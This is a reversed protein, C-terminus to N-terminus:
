VPKTRSRTSGRSAPEQVALVAVARALADASSPAAAARAAAFRRSLAVADFQVVPAPHAENAIAEVDTDWWTGLADLSTDLADAVVYALAVVHKCVQRDSAGYPCSCSFRPAVVQDLGAADLRDHLDQLVGGAQDRFADRVLRRFQAVADDGVTTVISVRYPAPDSGQIRASVRGRGLTLGVTQGARAYSRGRTAVGSSSRACVQEVLDAALGDCRRRPDVRRGGDVPRAVTREYWWDSM